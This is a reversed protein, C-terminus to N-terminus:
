PSPLAIIYTQECSVLYGAVMEYISALSLSKPDSVSPKM